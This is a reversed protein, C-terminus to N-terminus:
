GTRWSCRGAAPRAAPRRTAGAAGHPPAGAGGVDLDRRHDLGEAEEARPRHPHPPDLVAHVLGPDGGAVRRDVRGEVRAAEGVREGAHVEHAEGELPRRGRGAATSTTVSRCGPARGPRSRGGLRGAARSTRTGRPRDRDGREDDLRGPAGHGDLLHDRVPGDRVPRGDRGEVGLVAMGALRDLREDIRAPSADCATRAASGTVVSASSACRADCTPPSRRSSRTCARRPPPPSWRRSPRRAGRRRGAGRGSRWRSARGGEM